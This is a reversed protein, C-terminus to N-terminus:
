ISLVYHQKSIGEKFILLGGDRFELSITVKPDRILEQWGQNMEISWRIDDIYIMGNENMHSSILEYYRLLAERTHNADIIAFDIKESQDITKPLTEDINGQQLAINACRLKQWNEEAIKCLAENGEFTLIQGNPMARSLYATTIGLSTGLELCIGPRAMKILQHLLLCTGPTSIGVKAITSINRQESKDIVQTGAGYDIGDVLAYNSKLEQRINEIEPDPSGSSIGKKLESYFDFVYPAQLSHRDIAKFFYSILLPLTKLRQFINM